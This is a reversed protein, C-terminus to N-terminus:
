EENRCHKAEAQSGKEEIVTVEDRPVHCCKFCESSWNEPIARVFQGEMKALHIIKLDTALTAVSFHM